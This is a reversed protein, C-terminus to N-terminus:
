YRGDTLRSMLNVYMESAKDVIENPLPPITPEEKGERRAEMLKDYYGNEKYYERVFEKSQDVFNDKEYEDKEWFRDEDATGFTDVLMIERDEDMAFEKKGEVHLLGNKEVTNEMLDDIEFVTEKIEEYEDETLGSISLAEEKELNRDYEELKTTVEFFPEPLRDGYDPEGSFGLREHDIEGRKIRDHLSGAVYYRAIFELPILYNTTEESIKDYDDIVKVEEVLMRKEDKRKIFHTNVGMEEAKKFWYTSTKCLSEGKRPIKNPIVKEFISISDTFLFELRDEGTQYVEKVEGKRILKKM